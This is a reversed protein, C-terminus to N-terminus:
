SSPRPIPRQRSSRSVHQSNAVCDVRLRYPVTCGAPKLRSAASLCMHLDLVQM